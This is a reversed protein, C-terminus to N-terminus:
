DTAEKVDVSYKYGENTNTITITTENSFKKNSIPSIIDETVYGEEKLTELTITYSSGLSPLYSSNDVFYNKTDEIINNIQIDYANKRNDKLTKDVITVVITAIIGLLVIVGLLEVLTFGKKM